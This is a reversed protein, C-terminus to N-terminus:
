TLLTVMHGYSWLLMLAYSCILMHGACTSSARESERERAREVCLSQELGHLLLCVGDCRMGRCLIVCIRLKSEFLLTHKRLDDACKHANDRM